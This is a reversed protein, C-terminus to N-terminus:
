VVFYVSPLHEIQDASFPHLVYNSITGATAAYPFRTQRVPHVGQFIYSENFAHM